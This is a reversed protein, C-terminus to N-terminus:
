VKRGTLRDRFRDLAGAVTGATLLGVKRSPGHPHPRTPAVREALLFKAGLIWSGLGTTAASLAPLVQEEEFAIHARAMAAIEVALDQRSQADSSFRLTDLATKAEAEQRLATEALDSGGRVRKRVAPWLVVEEAAEHRSEAAILYDALRERATDDYSVTEPPAALQDLLREVYRHQQLLCTALKPV